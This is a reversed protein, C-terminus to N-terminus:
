SCANGHARFCAAGFWDKEAVLAKRRFVLRAVLAWCDGQFLELDAGLVELRDWWGNGIEDGGYVGVVFGQLRQVHGGDAGFFL